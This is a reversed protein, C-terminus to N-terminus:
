LITINNKTYMGIKQDSFKVVIIGTPKIYFVIGTQATREFIDNELTPNVTVLDGLNPLIQTHM